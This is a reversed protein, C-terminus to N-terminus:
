IEDKNELYKGFIHWYVNHFLYNLGMFMSFTCLFSLDEGIRACINNIEIFISFSSSIILIIMLLGILLQKM